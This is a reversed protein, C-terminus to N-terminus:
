NFLDRIKSFFSKDEKTPNPAFNKSGKLKNLMSKEQSSLSKPVWVNIHVFMDGTGYGNINPLGLGKLRFTKGSQTGGPIKFKKKGGTVIPVEMSTGLAAEPFTIYAVHHLNDGDREYIDSPKEEILIQLDGPDGGRLGAHGKGRKSLRVGESVGAPIKVTIVEETAVRGDGNCTNCSKTIIRGEGNCQPCTTVVIQQFFGGGAQRRVEGAGNCMPCTQFDSSSAAGTGSCTDCGTYRQLKIKKELGTAIEELTLTVKIRLDGGRQGRPRRRRGGRGQSGGFFSEFPNGEGFIDSFRSFIDDMNANSYGGAAGSMGAHGFRDYQARKQDDSLVEYAEAAEKFKEEASADGPNKDPHHKMALKRYAKKLEDKSAGKEVGLVEYYDRKAM